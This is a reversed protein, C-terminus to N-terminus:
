PLVMWWQAPYSDFAWKMKCFRQVKQWPWPRVLFFRQVEQWPRPRLFHSDARKRKQRRSQIEKKKKSIRPQVQWQLSYSFCNSFWLFQWSHVDPSLTLVATMLHESTFLWTRVIGCHLSHPTWMQNICNKIMVDEREKAVPLFMLLCCSRSLFRQGVRESYFVLSTIFHETSPDVKSRSKRRAKSEVDQVVERSLNKQKINLWLALTLGPQLTFLGWEELHVEQWPCPWLVQVTQWPLWFRICKMRSVTVHYTLAICLEARSLM